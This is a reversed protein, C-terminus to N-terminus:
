HFLLHLQFSITLFVVFAITQRDVPPLSALTNTLIKSIGAAKSIFEAESILSDMAFYLLM